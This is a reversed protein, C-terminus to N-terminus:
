FCYILSNGKRRIINNELLKKITSNLVEKDLNCRDYQCYTCEAVFNMCNPTDAFAYRDNDIIISDSKIMILVCKEINSLKRITGATVGFIDLTFSAFGKTFQIDFLLGIFALTTKKMNLYCNIKPIVFSHFDKGFFVKEKQGLMDNQIYLVEDKGLVNKVFCKHQILLKAGGPNMYKSLESIVSNEDGRINIYDM